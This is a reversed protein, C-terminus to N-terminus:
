NPQSRDDHSCAETRPPRGTSHREAKALDGADEGREDAVEVNPREDQHVGDIDSNPPAAPPKNM